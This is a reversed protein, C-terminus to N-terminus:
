HVVNKFAAYFKGYQGFDEHYICGITCHILQDSLVEEDYIATFPMCTLVLTVTDRQQKGKSHLVAIKPAKRFNRVGYKPIPENRKFYLKANGDSIVEFSVGLKVNKELKEAADAIHVRL